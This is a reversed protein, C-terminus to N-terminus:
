RRTLDWVGTQGECGGSGSERWTGSMTNGFVRGTMTSLCGIHEFTLTVASGALSGSLVIQLDQPVCDPRASTRTRFTGPGTLTTGSQSLDAGLDMEVDCLINTQFTYTGSWRGAVNPIEDASSSTALAVAGAIAGVGAAGMVVATTSLGGGATAGGTAAGAAAGGAAGPSATAGAVMSVLGLGSFGPPLAPAGSSLAGVSVRASASAAAVRLEPACQGPQVVAASYDVSRTEGLSRDNAEFYYEIRRTTRLPRPLIGEYLGREPVMEVYYWDTEGGARFLLRARAVSPAPELRAELVPFRDAL